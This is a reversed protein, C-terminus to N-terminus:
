VARQAENLTPASGPVQDEGELILYISRKCLPCRSSRQFWEDICSKHFTHKCPSPLTRCVEGVVFSNLCISCKTQDEEQVRPQTPLHPPPHIDHTFEGIQVLHKEELKLADLDHVGRSGRYRNPHRFEGDCVVKMFLVVIILVLFIIVILVTLINTNSQQSPVEVFSTTNGSGDLRRSLYDM